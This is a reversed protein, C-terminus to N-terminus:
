GAEDSGGNKKQPIRWLNLLKLAGGKKEGKKVLKKSHRVM